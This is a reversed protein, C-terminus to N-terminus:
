KYLEKILTLDGTKQTKKFIKLKTLSEIIDDYDEQKKFNLGKALFKIDAQSVKKKSGKLSSLIYLILTFKEDGRNKDQIDKWIRASLYQRKFLGNKVQNFLSAAKKKKNWNYDIREIGKIDSPVDKKISNNNFIYYGKGIGKALGLELCVNANWGTIDFIAFDCDKLDKAIKVLLHDNTIKDNAPKVTWPLWSLEEVLKDMRSDFPCALFVRPFKEKPKPM